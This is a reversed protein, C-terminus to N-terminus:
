RVRKINYMQEVYSSERSGYLPILPTVSVGNLTGEYYKGDDNIYRFVSVDHIVYPEGDVDGIYMLVHGPVYILDGIDMKQLALLKEKESSDAPFRTNEGFSGSGQQGTNRPM